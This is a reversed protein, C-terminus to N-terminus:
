IISFKSSEPISFLIIKFSTKYFNIAEKFMSSIEQVPSKLYSECGLPSLILADYGLGHAMQFIAFIRERMQLKANESIFKRGDDIFESKPLTPCAVFSYTQNSLWDNPLVNYSSDKLIYVKETLILEHQLPYLERTTAKFYTTRRYLEAEQSMNGVEVGNGPGTGSSMSLVLINTFEGYNGNMVDWVLQLPEATSSMINAENYSDSNIKGCSIMQDHNASLSQILSVPYRTSPGTEINRFQGRTCLYVTDEYVNALKQMKTQAM